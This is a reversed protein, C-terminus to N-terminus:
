GWNSLLILLDSTGVMGDDDLDAPCDGCAGWESLLILLDATGVVGDDDIDGVIDVQPDFEYAGMDVIDSGNEDGDVIRPNGDFDFELSDPVLDNNGTDIVPSKSQVRFDPPDPTCENECLTQAGCPGDGACLSDWEVDCCFPDCACVLDQCESNGCGPTGNPVCCDSTPEGGNVFLPDELLNGALITVNGESLNNFGFFCNSSAAITGKGTAVLQVGIEDNLFNSVSNQINVDANDVFVCRATGDDNQTSPSQGMAGTSGTSGNSCNGCAGGGIGGGGGSGGSTNLGANSHHLLAFTNQIIDVNADSDIVVIATAIGGARGVGGTGGAGGNGGKGGNTCLNPFISDCTGGGGNGGKGGSGAFGGPGANGAHLESILNQVVATNAPLDALRIGYAPGANGGLGGQGGKGGHGGDGPEGLILGPFGNGGSGGNGGKGGTGGRGGDGGYIRRIHTSRIDPTAGAACDIGVATGGAMGTSGFVGTGGNGGNDGHPSGFVGHAGNPGNSGNQGTAGINGDAATVNQVVCRYIGPEANPGLVHIGRASEGASSALVDSVVTNELTPSTGQIQIGVDNTFDIIADSVEGGSGSNFHIGNWREDGNSTFLVPDNPTGAVILEGGAEIFIGVDGQVLVTVGAEVTLTNSIHLDSIVNQTSGAPWTVDGGAWASQTTLGPVAAALAFGLMAAMPMITGSPGLPNKSTANLM